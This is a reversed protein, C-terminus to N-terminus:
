LTIGSRSVGPVLALMQACGIIVADRLTIDDIGRKHSARKEVIALAIGVVIQATAIVWLARFSGEVRHKLLIGALGVPITGVIIYLLQLAAQEPPKSRDRAWRLG